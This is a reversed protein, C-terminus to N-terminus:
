YGYKKTDVKGEAIKRKLLQEDKKIQEATISFSCVYDPSMWSTDILAKCQGNRNNVCKRCEDRHASTSIAM